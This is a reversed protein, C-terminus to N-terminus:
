ASLAKGSDVIERLDESPGISIWSRVGSLWKRGNFSSHNPQTPRHLRDPRDQHEWQSSPLIKSLWKLSKGLGTFLPFSPRREIRLARSTFLRRRTLAILIPLRVVRRDLHHPQSVRSRATNQQNRCRITIRLPVWTKLTSLCTNDFCIKLPMSKHGRLYRSSDDAESWSWRLM